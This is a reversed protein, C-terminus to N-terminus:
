SADRIWLDVKRRKNETEVFRREEETLSAMFPLNIWPRYLKRKNFLLHIDKERFWGTRCIDSAVPNGSKGALTGTFVYGWSERKFFSGLPSAPGLLITGDDFVIDNELLVIFGTEERGERRATDLVSEGEEGHGAPLGWQKGVSQEVLLIENERRIVLGASLRLGEGM